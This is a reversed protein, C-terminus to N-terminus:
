WTTSPSCASASRRDRGRRRAHGRGRPDDRGRGEPGPEAHEGRGETGGARTTPVPKRQFLEAVGTELDAIVDTTVTQSAPSGCCWRPRLVEPLADIVAAGRDAPLQSLVLAITQPHEDSIREAIFGAPLRAPDLRHAERRARAERPHGHARDPELTNEVIELARERGGAIRTDDQQGLPEQFESLM